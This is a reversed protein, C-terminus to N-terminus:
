DGPTAANSGGEVDGRRDPDSKGFEYRLLLALGGTMLAVVLAQSLSVLPPGTGLFFGELLATAVILIGLAILVGVVWLRGWWIGVATGLAALAQLGYASVLAWDGDALRIGVAVATRQAAFVLLLIALFFQWLARHGSKEKEKEQM